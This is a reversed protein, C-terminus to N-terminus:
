QNIERVIDVPTLKGNWMIRCGALLEWEPQYAEYQSYCKASKFWIAGGAVVGFLLVTVLVVAVIERM